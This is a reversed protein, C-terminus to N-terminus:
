ASINPNVKEWQFKKKLPNKKSKMRKQKNLKQSKIKSRILLAM